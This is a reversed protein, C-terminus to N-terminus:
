VLSSVIRQAWRAIDSSVHASLREFTVREAVLRARLERIWDVESAISCEVFGTLIDLIEVALEDNAQELIELLFPLAPLAASSIYAHQHCLSSWLHHSAAMATAADASALALLQDPVSGWRETLTGDRTEFQHGSSARGYATKYDAWPIARLREPLDPRM